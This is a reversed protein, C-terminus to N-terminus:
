VSCVRALFGKLYHTEPMAALVPHDAAQQLNQLIQLARGHKAAARAAVEILEGASMHFSCSCSILIGGPRILRIASETLRRYALSGEAHDKKRKILAPPDIIVVDFLEGVQQLRKLEDFADAKVATVRDAVKNLAANEILADLAKQSSDICMVERAGAVAAGVGWAGVYSFVDLVRADKFYMAARARNDRQDYFWGTKQGTLPFTGFAAGLEQIVVPEVLEGFEVRVEEPLGELARVSAENKWLLTKPAYVERIAAVIHVLLAQMGATGIQGVMVDGFRDLVLGPLGDSEGFVQRGFESVGLTKRLALAARLKEAFWTQDIVALPDHSLLRACILSGPNFYAVGLEKANGGVVRVLSGATIGLQALKGHLENNYIWVHGARLRREGHQNIQITAVPTSM